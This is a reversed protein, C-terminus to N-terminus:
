GSKRRYENVTKKHPENLTVTAVRETTECLVESTGTDIEMTM